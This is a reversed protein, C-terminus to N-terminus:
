AGRGGRRLGYGLDLRSTLLSRGRRLAEWGCGCGRRVVWYDRTYRYGLIVIVGEMKSVIVIAQKM